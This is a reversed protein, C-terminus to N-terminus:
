LVIPITRGISSSAMSPNRSQSFASRLPHTAPHSQPIRQKKSTLLPLSIILFSSFSSSSSTYHDILMGLFDGEVFLKLVDHDDVEELRGDETRRVSYYLRQSATSAALSSMLHEGTGSVVSAITKEEPDKPAAPIVHTGIGNLAAPGIRGEIRLAIGGSSSGAAINGASDIAIAGITDSITDKSASLASSKNHHSSSPTSSSSSSSEFTEDNTTIVNPFAMPNRPPSFAREVDSGSSFSITTRHITAPSLRPDYDEGKEDVSADDEDSDEHANLGLEQALAQRNKEWHNKAATSIMQENAVTKLGHERALWFGSEGVILNPPARNLSQVKRSNTYVVSALEIPRLVGRAAGVAGSQGRHDVITADCEVFGNMTLNSGPGANTLESNELVTIATQVASIASAGKM